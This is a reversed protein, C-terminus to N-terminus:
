AHSAERRAATKAHVTSTQRHLHALARLAAAAGSRVSEAVNMPRVACGAAFIGAQESEMVFGQRDLLLPLPLADAQPLPQGQWDDPLNPWSAAAPPMDHPSLSPRMGTAWVVLDYSYALREGTLSNEAPLCIGQRDPVARFPRAPFFRLRGAREYEKLADRLLFLRGPTRLDMYYVDVLLDPLRDLLIRCHKLTASCCVSSCHSLHNVDRSGACQLFAMRRPPTGTGPRLVRGSTPGDPSLLRELQMNTLCLPHCAGRDALHVVPYPRWGTAVIVADCSITALPSSDPPSDHSSALTQLVLKHRGNESAYGALRTSLHVTLRSQRSLRATLLELGCAPPCLKPFYSALTRVRGGLRPSIEVLHTSLGCEAAEVAATLGAMGGGLVALSASSSFVPLVADNMPLLSFFIALPNLPQLVSSIRLFM